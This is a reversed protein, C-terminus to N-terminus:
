AGRFRPARKETFARDAELADETLALWGAAHMELDQVASLDMSLALDIFRKQHALGLPASSALREAMELATDLLADVPVRKAVLGIREAEGASIKEAFLMLRRANALGVMMPLLKACGATMTLGIQTEAFYFRTNEAAVIFDSAIAIELGQGVTWGEVAAISLMDPDRLLRVIDACDKLLATYTSIPTQGNRVSHMLEDYALLDAGASFHEGEGSFVVVRVAPDAQATKLHKLIDRADDPSIPNRSKPRNLHIRAIRQRVVEYDISM